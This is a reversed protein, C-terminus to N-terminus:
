GSKSVYVACVVWLVDFKVLELGMNAPGLHELPAEYIYICM